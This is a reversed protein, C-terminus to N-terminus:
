LIGFASLLRPIQYANARLGATVNTCGSARLLAIATNRLAALIQPASGRRTPESDERFAVDRVRHLRNEIGWHGRSWDLLREASAQDPPVSTILHVVEKTTRGGVTRSRELRCVQAIEPWTERLTTALRSSAQLRRVEM